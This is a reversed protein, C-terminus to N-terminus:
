NKKRFLKIGAQREFERCILKLRETRFQRFAKPVGPTWIGSSPHHPILHSRMSRSFHKRGVFPSLYSDPRKMGFRQNEEAVIFCINCLSNYESHKLGNVALLQRPFIHHRDKRNARSAFVSAPIPQGNEVYCPRQSALLCMFVNAIASQQTYETRSIELPDIRDTFTFKAHSTALKKFFRVDGIQNERHGRGSYRKGVGTAWFWKRIERRQKSSPAAPHHYFFVSLTALMNGSPLFGTHLVSFEHHLFDVAKQFAIRYKKWRSFFASEQGEKASQKEWWAVTAELARQGVDLTREPTAFAFGQLIINFDIDQFEPLVGHRLEHALDRLDIRSARAFARDAASIKMGQSNIRLFVERVEDLDNSHITVLPINYRLLRARCDQVRNHLFKPLGRSRRRWDSALIDQVSMFHRSLPKRYAFRAPDNEEKDPDLVFCMRGFDILKGNSNEREGGTFAEYLVSLRQQGDILFWGFPSNTDFPPLLHLQQRLLDYNNPSTEWILLSGIPMQKYMSDLLAAAKRGDWVFERQLKPVAFIKDVLRHYLKRLSISRLSPAKM